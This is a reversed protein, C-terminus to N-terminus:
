VKKKNLYVHLYYLISINIECDPSNKDITSGVSLHHYLELM